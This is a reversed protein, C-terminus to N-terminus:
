VVFDSFEYFRRFFVHEPEGTRSTHRSMFHLPNGFAWEPGGKAVTADLMRRRKENRYAELLLCDISKLGSLAVRQRFVWNKRVYGCLLAAAKRRGAQAERQAPLDFLSAIHPLWFMHQTRRDRLDQPRATHFAMRDEHATASLQYYFVRGQIVPLIESYAIGYREFLEGDSISHQAVCLKCVRMQLSWYVDHRFRCGCLGCRTGHYLAYWQRAFATFREKFEPTNYAPDADGPVGGTHHPVGTLGEKYLRLMPFRPDNVKVSMFAKYYFHRKYIGAWFLHDRTIVHRLNRDVMQLLILSRPHDQLFRLVIEWPFDKSLCSSVKNRRQWCRERAPARRKIRRASVVLDGTVLTITDAPDM